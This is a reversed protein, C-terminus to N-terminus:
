HGPGAHVSYQFVIIALFLLITFAYIQTTNTLNKYMNEALFWLAIWIMATGIVCSLESKVPTSASPSDM